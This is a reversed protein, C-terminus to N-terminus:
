DFDTYNDSFYTSIEKIIYPNNEIVQKHVLAYASKEIIQYHLYHEEYFTDQRTLFTYPYHPLM